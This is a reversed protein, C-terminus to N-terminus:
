EDLPEELYIDISYNSHIDVGRKEIERDLLDEKVNEMYHSDIKLTIKEQDYITICKDGAIVELFERVTM